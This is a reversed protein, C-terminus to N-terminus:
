RRGHQEVPGTHVNSAWASDSSYAVSVPSSDSARPGVSDGYEDSLSHQYSYISCTNYTYETATATGDFLSDRDFPVWWCVWTCTYVYLFMPLEILESSM